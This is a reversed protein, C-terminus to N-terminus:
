ESVFHLLDVILNFLELKDDITEWEDITNKPEIWARKMQMLILEFFSNLFSESSFLLKKCLLSWM